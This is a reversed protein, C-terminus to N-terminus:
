RGLDPFVCRLRSSPPRWKLVLYVERQGLARYLSKPFTRIKLRLPKSKKNRFLMKLGYIDYKFTQSVNTPYKYVVWSVGVVFINAMFSQMSHILQRKNEFDIDITKYTFISFINM